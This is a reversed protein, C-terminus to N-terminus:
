RRRRGRGRARGDVPMTGGATRSSRAMIFRSATPRIPRSAPASSRSGVQPEATPGDEPDEGSWIRPPAPPPRPRRQEQGVPPNREQDSRSCRSAPTRTAQQERRRQGDVARHHRQGAEGFGPRSPGSARVVRPTTSTASTTTMRSKVAANLRACACGPRRLRGARGAGAEAAARPTPTSRRRGARDAAHHAQVESEHAVLQHHEGHHHHEGRRRRRLCQLKSSSSLRSTAPKKTSFTAGTRASGSTSVSCWM